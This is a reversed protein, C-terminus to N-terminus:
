RLADEFACAAVVQCEGERLAIILCKIAHVFNGDSIMSDRKEVDCILRYFLFGDPGNVRGVSFEDNVRFDASISDNDIGAGAVVVGDCRSACLEVLVSISYDCQIYLKCYDSRM